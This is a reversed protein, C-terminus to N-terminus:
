DEEPTEIIPLDKVLVNGYAAATDVLRSPFDGAPSWIVYAEASRQGLEIRARVRTHGDVLYRRYEEGVFHEEAIFMVDLEDQRVRELVVELKERDLANQTAILSHMPVTRVEYQVHVGLSGYVSIVENLTRLQGEATILEGRWM